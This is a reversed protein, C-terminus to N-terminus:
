QTGSTAAIMALLTTILREGEHVLQRYTLPLTRVGILALRQADRHDREFKGRARHHQWGDAQLVIGYQPWHFDPRIPAGGDGPDIWGNVLPQPIQPHSAILARLARECESFPVGLGFTYEELARALRGAAARFPAREIQARLARLDFRESAEMAEFMRGLQSSSLVDACDLATRAVSTCPLGRVGIVDDACLTSSRHVDIGPRHANRGRLLTIDIRARATPRLDLLQAASRVSIVAGPGCALVAAVLRGDASLLHPPVLAYVGKYCRFLRGRASWHYVQRRSVGLAELQALAIV